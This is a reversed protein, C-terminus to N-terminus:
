SGPGLGGLGDWSRRPLKELRAQMRESVLSKYHKELIQVSDGLM